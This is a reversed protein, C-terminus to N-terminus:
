GIYIKATNYLYTVLNWAFRIIRVSTTKIQLFYPKLLVFDPYIIKLIALIVFCNLITILSISFVRGGAKQIDKQLPGTFIIEMTNAIHFSTFFGSLLVFLWEYPSIKWFLSLLIYLLGIVLVYFPLFYPSLIIITNIRSLSVYGSRKRVAIKRVKVGQFFAALAHSLEHSLVYVRSNNSMYKHFPAYAFFGATFPLSIKIERILNIFVRFTEWFIACIFPFLIISLFTKIL